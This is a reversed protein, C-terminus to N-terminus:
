CGWVGVTRGQCVEQRHWIKAEWPTTRDRHFVVIHVEEAGSKDAYALAQAWAPALTKELSGRLIKLELVIRQVPGSFARAADLPYEILLDTRLTGLGYERHIRGGGNILRQLFAQLLLQPGAERYSFRDLWSEAHERFFQQFAELLRDMLIRGDPAQYWALERPIMVQMGYSLERPIIERYIRNAVAIQPTLTILGLDAVYRLDDNPITTDMEEPSPQGGLLALIVGHVRPESLKDTLQDLHTARSEILRERAAFYIERTIPVRRDRATRDKWTMEHGLANVLWPQGRTDEWLEDFISEAFVQGTADTHQRLLGECEGRTFNGLRLSEAKINFASGGTIIEGDSRHIRYDRIDRLGCLLISQPFDSPRQSYGSRLQRLLSVLTDGVLADVEDLFLVIPRDAMRAWHALLSRLRNPASVLKGERYFWDQLRRDKLYIAVAEFISTCVAMMGEEVNNRATQATEINAYVAAYRSQANLAQMMELLATTKGTQRPAHLLFYRKQAILTQIGEWDIREFSPIGYHDDAINPGATNFFKEPM